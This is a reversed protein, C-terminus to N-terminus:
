PKGLHSARLVSVQIDSIWETTFILGVGSSMLLTRYGPCSGDAWPCRCPTELSRDRPYSPSAEPVPGSWVSNLVSWYDSLLVAPAEEAKPQILWEATDSEKCDWPSYSVLSRQGHSEGPLSVPTPQWKRKWPIKGAWPNFGPRRCQLTKVMQAVPFHFFFFFIWAFSYSHPFLSLALSNEKLHLRTMRIEGRGPPLM